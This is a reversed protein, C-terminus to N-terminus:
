GVEATYTRGMGFPGGFEVSAPTFDGEATVVGEARQGPSLTMTAIQDEAEGLGSTTDKKTGDDAVISFYLPNVDVNEDGNNEVTVYVSTFDGGDYLISPTFEVAEATVVVDQEEEPAAEETDEAAAEEVKEEQETGERATTPEPPGDDLDGGSVAAVCGGFLFLVLLLGGCGLGFKKGTSMGPRPSAPPMPRGYPPQQSDGPHPQQPQTM